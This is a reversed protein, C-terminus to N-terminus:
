AALTALYSDEGNQTVGPFVSSLTERIDTKQNLASVRLRLVVEQNNLEYPWAERVEPVDLLKSQVSWIDPGGNPNSITVLVSHLTPKRGAALAPRQRQTAAPQPDPMPAPPPDIATVDSSEAPRIFDEAPSPAPTSVVSEAAAGSTMENASSSAATAADLHYLLEEMQQIESRLEAAMDRITDVLKKRVSAILASADRAARLVQLLAPADVSASLGPARRGIAQLAAELEQNAAQMRRSCEGAASAAEGSRAPKEVAKQFSQSSM